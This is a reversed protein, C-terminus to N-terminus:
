GGFTRLETKMIEAIKRLAVFSVESSDYEAQLLKYTAQNLYMESEANVVDEDLEAKAKTLTANKEGSYKFLAKAMERKYSRESDSAKIKALEVKEALESINNSCQAILRILEPPTPNTPIFM